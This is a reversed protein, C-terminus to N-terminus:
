FSFLSINYEAYILDWLVTGEYTECHGYRENVEVTEDPNIMTEPFISCIFSNEKLSVSGHKLGYRIDEGQGYCNRGSYGSYIPDRYGKSLLYKQVNQFLSKGGSSKSVLSRIIDLYNDERFMDRLYSKLISTRGEKMTQNPIKGLGYVERITSIIRHCDIGRAACTDHNFINYSESLMGGLISLGSFSLEVTKSEGSTRFFILSSAHLIEVDSMNGQFWNSVFSEDFFHTVELWEPTKGKSFLDCYIDTIEEGTLSFCKRFATWDEEKYLWEDDFLSSINKTEFLSVQRSTGILDQNLDLFATVEDKLYSIFRIPKEGDKFIVTSFIGSSDDSILYPSMSINLGSHFPHLGRGGHALSSM